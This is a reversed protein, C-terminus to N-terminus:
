GYFATPSQFFGATTRINAGGTLPNVVIAVAEDVFDEFIQYIGDAAKESLWMWERQPLPNPGEYFGGHTERDEVGKNHELMYDPPTAAFTISGGEGGSEIVYSSRATAVAKGAGTKTLTSPGGQRYTVDGTKPVHGVGPIFEFEPANEISRALPPWAGESGMSAEFHSKVDAVVVERAALLMKYEDELAAAAEDLARAVRLPEDEHPAWHFSLEGQTGNVFTYPELSL